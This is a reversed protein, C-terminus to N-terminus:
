MLFPGISYGASAVSLQSIAYRPSLFSSIPARSWAALDAIPLHSETHIEQRLLRAIELPGVYMRNSVVKVVDSHKNQM